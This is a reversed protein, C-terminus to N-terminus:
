FLYSILIMASTIYSKLNIRSLYPKPILLQKIKEHMEELPVLNNFKIVHIQPYKKEIEDAKIANSKETDLPIGYM